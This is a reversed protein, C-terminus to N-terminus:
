FAAKACSSFANKFVGKVVGAVPPPLSVGAPARGRAGDSFLYGKECLERRAAKVASESIHLAGALEGASIFLCPSWLSSNFRFLYYQYLLSAYASLPNVAQKRYFEQLESLWNRM